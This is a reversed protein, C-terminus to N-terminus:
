PAIADEDEAADENGPMLEVDVIGPWPKVRRALLPFDKRMPHGEFEGPLYIHRLDPHGTFVVGFMEWAEREHWDAGAFVSIWSDVMPNDDALDAKLILSVPASPGAAGSGNSSGAVGQSSHATAVGLNSRVTAVRAFVQLRTEGGAYGHQIEGLERAPAGQTIRDQETDMDRGFPSPLWDIVSLFDFWVCDLVDRAVIGARQWADASVRVWLDGTSKVHSDLLDEGLEAALKELAAQAAAETASVAPEDAAVVVETGSTAAEDAAVVVGTGSAAAEGEAAM